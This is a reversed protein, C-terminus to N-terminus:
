VTWETCREQKGQARVGDDRVPGKIQGQEQGGKRNVREGVALSAKRFCM